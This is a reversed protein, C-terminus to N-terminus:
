TMAREVAKRINAETSWHEWGRAKMSVREIGYGMRKAIYWLYGDQSPVPLKGSGAWLDACQAALFTFGTHFFGCWSIIRKHGVRNSGPEPVLNLPPHDKLQSIKNAWEDLKIMQDGPKTFGWPHSVIAPGGEFWKPDIWDDCGVAVVDTDLKLWYPTRVYRAPVHVFGSLMKYRQPDGFRDDSQREYVQAERPWGVVSLRPHDIASRVDRGTVLTRDFFVLMPQELLSPKHRIWTPFTMELQRLHKHDVGVVLTYDIM